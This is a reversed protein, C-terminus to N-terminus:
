HENIGQTEAGLPLTNGSVGNLRTIAPISATCFKGDILRQFSIFTLLVRRTGLTSLPLAWDM